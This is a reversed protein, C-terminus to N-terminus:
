SELTSDNLAGLLNSINKSTLVETPDKKKHM